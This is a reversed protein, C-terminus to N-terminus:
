IGFIEYSTKSPSIAIQAARALSKQHDRFTFNELDIESGTTIDVISFNLKNSKAYDVMPLYRRFPYDHILHGDLTFAENTSKAVGALNLSKEENFSLGVCISHQILNWHLSEPSSFESISNKLYSGLIAVPVTHEVHINRDSSKSGNRNSPAIKMFDLSRYLTGACKGNRGQKAMWGYFDHIQRIAHNIGQEVNVSTPISQNGIKHWLYSSYRRPFTRRNPDKIRVLIDNLVSSLEQQHTLFNIYSIEDSM